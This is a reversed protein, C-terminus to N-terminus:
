RLKKLYKPSFDETLTEPYLVFILDELIRDPETVGGEWFDNGGTPTTLSNFTYVTSDQFAKFWTHKSDIEELEQLTKAPAGVWVDADKFLQLVQEISLPLSGNTSDSAYAYSAGADHFLRGMYTAGSPVYWTGRFSGGSLISKSYALGSEAVQEKLQEYHEATAEFLSDALEEKGLLAGFFRIWEARGVPDNEVWEMVPVVTLGAKELRTTAADNTSYTSMFVVEPQAAVFREVDPSMCDGLNQVTEPLPTFVLHKDTVGCLAETADLAHIFGVHTCSGTAVRRVPVRVVIGDGPLPFDNLHYNENFTNDKSRKEKVEKSRNENVLYYRRLVPKDAEWPNYIRLEQFHFTEGDAVTDHEVVAFYRAFTTGEREMDQGARKGACGWSMLGILSILGIYKCGKVM